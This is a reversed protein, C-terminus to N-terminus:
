IQRTQWDRWVRQSDNRVLWVVKKNYGYWAVFDLGLRRLGYLGLRRLGYLGLRYLGACLYGHHM